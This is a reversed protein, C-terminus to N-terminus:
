PAIVRRAGAYRGGWYGDSLYDYSVGGNSSNIMMDNGVYIGVHSVDSPNLRSTHFFVLDGPRLESRSVPVGNYFQQQSPKIVSIGFHGYVYQVFGSCDFGSPTNGGWLYPIGKFQDAFDLIQQVGGPIKVTGTVGGSHNIGRSITGNSSNDKAAYAAEIAEQQILQQVRSVKGQASVSSIVMAREDTSLQDLVTQQKDLTQQVTQQTQAKAQISAQITTQKQKILEQQNNMTEKLAVIDKQLKSFNGVVMQIKDARDIFDSVSTADFLVSLYTTFGDEYNSKLVNGLSKINEQRQSELKKQEDELGKLNHQEETLLRQERAMSNNLALVSQKLSVVQSTAGAVKDKQANLAENLQNAQQKSQNLQQQLDDARVPIVSAVLLTVGIITVLTTKHLFHIRKM